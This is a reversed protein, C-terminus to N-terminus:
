ARPDTEAAIAREGPHKEVIAAGDLEYSASGGSSSGGCGAALPLALLLALPRATM